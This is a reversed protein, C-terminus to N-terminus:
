TNKREKKSGVLTKVGQVLLGENQIIIITFFDEGIIIIHTNLTCSIELFAWQENHFAQVIKGVQGRPVAADESCAGGTMLLVSVREVSSLNLIEVRKL